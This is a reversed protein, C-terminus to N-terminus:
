PEKNEAEIKDYWSLWDAVYGFAEGCTELHDVPIVATDALAVGGSLDLPGYPLRPLAEASAAEPDARSEERLRSFAARNRELTRAVRTATEDAIRANTREKEAIREAREAWMTAADQELKGLQLHWEAREAMKAGHARANGYMWVSFALLAFAGLGLLVRSFTV